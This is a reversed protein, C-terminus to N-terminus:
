QSTFRLIIEPLEDDTADRHILWLRETLRREIVETKAIPIESVQHPEPHSDNGSLL